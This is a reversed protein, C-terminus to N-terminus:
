KLQAIHLVVISRGKHKYESEGYRTRKKEDLANKHPSFNLIAVQLRKKRGKSSPM